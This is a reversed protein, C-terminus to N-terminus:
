FVDTIAVGLGIRNQSHNYDILSEGYGSSLQIYGRLRGWLPFTTGLELYRKGESLNQRGM